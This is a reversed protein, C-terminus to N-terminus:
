ILRNHTRTRPLDLYPCDTSGTRLTATTDGPAIWQLKGSDLWPRLDFDRSNTHWNDDWAAYRGPAHHVDYHDSGWVPELALGRPRYVACHYTIPWGTHPGVRVESIVARMEPHELPEVYVYPVDPGVCRAFPAPTPPGDLRMAGGMLLWTRPVPDLRRVPNDSKWFWGDVDVTDLPWYVPQDTFPCRSVLIDPLLERYRGHLASFRRYAAFGAETAGLRKYDATLRNGEALLGAREALFPEIGVIKRM